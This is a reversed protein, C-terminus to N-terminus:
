SLERVLQLSPQRAKDSPQSPSGDTLKGLVISLPESLFQRCPDVPDRALQALQDECSPQGAPRDPPGGQNKEIGNHQRDTRNRRSTRPSRFTMPDDGFDGLLIELGGSGGPARTAQPRSRSSAPAPILLIEASRHTLRRQEFLELAGSAKFPGGRTMVRNAGDRVVVFYMVEQDGKSGRLFGAV